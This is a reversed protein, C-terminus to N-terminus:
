RSRAMLSCMWAGLALSGWLLVFAAIRVLGALREDQELLGVSDLLYTWDHEVAPEGGGITVLPLEQARADGMYTAVNYLNTAEWFGGVPLGFWDGQRLLLWTAAIPVACQLITGGAVMVWEGLFAFVVHGAEHVALNIGGFLSGYLPDGLHRVGVYAFYVLLVARGIWRRGRAWEEVQGRWTDIRTPGAHHPPAELRGM